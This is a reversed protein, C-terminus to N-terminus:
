GSRGPPPNEQESANSCGRSTSPRIGPRFSNVDDRLIRIAIQQHTAPQQAFADEGTPGRDDFSRDLFTAYDKKPEACLMATLRVSREFKEEIREKEARGFFRCDRFQAAAALVGM